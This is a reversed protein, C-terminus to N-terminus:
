RPQCCDSVWSAASTSGSMGPYHRDLFLRVAGSTASSPDQHGVEGAIIDGFLEWSEGNFKM